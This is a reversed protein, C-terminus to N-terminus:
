VLVLSHYMFFNKSSTGRQRQYKISIFPEPQTPGPLCIPSELRTNTESLFFDMLSIELSSPRLIWSVWSFRHVTCYDRYYRKVTLLVNTHQFLSSLPWLYHSFRFVLSHGLFLPTWTWLTKYHLHSFFLPFTPTLRYVM